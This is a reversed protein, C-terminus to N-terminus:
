DKKFDFLCYCMFNYNLIENLNINNELMLNNISVMSLYFQNIIIIKLIKMWFNLNM